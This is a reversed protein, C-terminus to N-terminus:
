RGQRRMRQATDEMAVDYQENFLMFRHCNSLGYKRVGHSDTYTYATAYFRVLDGDKYRDLRDYHNVWIHDTYEKGNQTVTTFLVNNGSDAIRSFTAVYEVEKGLLKQLKKRLIKAM